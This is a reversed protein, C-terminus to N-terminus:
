RFTITVYQNHGVASGRSTAFDGTGGIIASTNHHSSSWVGQLELHGRHPVRIEINVLSSGANNIFTSAIFGHGIERGAAVAEFTRQTTAGAPKRDTAGNMSLHQSTLVVKFHMPALVAPSSTQVAASANIWLALTVAVALIAAFPVVRRYVVTMINREHNPPKQIHPTTGSTVASLTPAIEQMIM